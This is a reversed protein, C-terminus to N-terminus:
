LLREAAPQSASAVGGASPPTLVYVGIFTAAAAAPIFLRNM